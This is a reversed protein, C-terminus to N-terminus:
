NTINLSMSVSVKGSCYHGSHKLKQVRSGPSVSIPLEGEKAGKCIGLKTYFHLVLRM